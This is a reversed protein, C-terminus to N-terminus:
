KKVCMRIQLSHDCASLCEVKFYILPSAHKDKLFYSCRWKTSSPTLISRNDSLIVGCCVFFSKIKKDMTWPENQALFLSNSRKFSNYIFWVRTSV